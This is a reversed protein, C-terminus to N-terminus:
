GNRRLWHTFLEVRISYRQAANQVIVERDMMDKLLHDLGEVQPLDGKFAGAGSISSNAIATLLRLYQERPAEAVNEGAATILPDFTEEGLPSGSTPDPGGILALMVAEVEAETIHPRHVHNLYRVLRDCFIQLFWPNGATLQLLRTLAKGRYRTQNNLLIPQEALNRAETDSLYTIREDHIGGFENQFEKKFRPMSDQGVVVASFEQMQLMAKWQRMFHRDVIGERIYEYLYTFEDILLILRCSAWGDSLLANRCLHLARRFAELPSERLANRDPWAIGSIGMMELRDEMAEIFLRLFSFSADKTELTGLTVMIPFNPRQLRNRTQELVSTKGSRKQGYLGFCQGLANNTVVDVMRAILDQRGFFMHPDDVVTGGSYTKYPNEITEFETAAGVRVSIRITPSQVTKQAHTLYSMQIPVSFTEDSILKSDPRVHLQLIRRDGGRLVEPSHCSMKQSVGAGDVVLVDIGEVPAGGAASSLELTLMVSGDTEIMSRDDQLLVPRLELVPKATERYEEFNNSVAQYVLEAVPMLGDISLRTPAEQIEDMLMTLDLSLRSYKGERETFDAEIWYAAADNMYRQLLKLRSRDLEFRTDPLLRAVAGAIDQLAFATLSSAQYQLGRLISKERSQRESEAEILEEFPTPHARCMTRLELLYPHTTQEGLLREVVHGSATAYYPLDHFISSPSVGQRSLEDAVDVVSVHIRRNRTVTRALEAPQIRQTLYTSLLYALPMEAQKRATLRLAETLYCRAVDMHVGDSITAEGMFAFYSGLSSHVSIVEGRVGDASNPSRHAMTALSLHLEARERSRRGQINGLQKQVQYFDRVEFEGRARARDDVGLLKCHGLVFRDFVSLGSEFGALDLIDENALWEPAATQAIRVKEILGAAVSDNPWTRRIKELISLADDYKGDAYFCYAEQRLLIAGVAGRVKKQLSAFIRRADEYRKAKILFDAKMREIQVVDPFLTMHENLVKIAEDTRGQRNLLSALDKVASGQYQGQQNTARRYLTEAAKLNGSLEERKADTYPGSTKPLG